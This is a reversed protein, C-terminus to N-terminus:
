SGGIRQLLLKLAHEAQQPMVGNGILRMEQSRNLGVGTVWGDPLGMMWETLASSLRHNGNKGDPKTADPVPRGFINEWRRVADDFRGWDFKGSADPTFTRNVTRISDSVQLGNILALEAIQDRVMIKGRNTKTKKHHETTAGGEGEVASPTRFLRDKPIHWFSSETVVTRHALTPREFAQGNRTMGSPQWIGWYLALHECFLSNTLPQEWVGRAGNWIAFPLHM